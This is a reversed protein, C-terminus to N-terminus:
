PTTRRCSTAPKTKVWFSFCHALPTMWRGRRGAASQDIAPKDKGGVLDKASKIISDSLGESQQGTQGQWALTNMLAILPSQRVDSM